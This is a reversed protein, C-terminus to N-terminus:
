PEDSCALAVESVHTRAPRGVCCHLWFMHVLLDSWSRLRQGAFVVYVSKQPTGPTAIGSMGEFRKAHSESAKVAIDGSCGYKTVSMYRAESASSWIYYDHLVILARVLM